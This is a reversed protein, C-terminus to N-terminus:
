TLDDVEISGCETCVIKWMNGEYVFFKDGECMDCTQKNYGEKEYKDLEM